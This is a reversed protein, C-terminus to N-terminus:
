TFPDSWKYGCAYIADPERPSVAVSMIENMESFPAGEGPKKVEMKFEVFFTVKNFKVVAARNFFQGILFM